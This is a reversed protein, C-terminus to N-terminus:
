FMPKFWACNNSLERNTENTISHAALDGKHAGGQEDNETGSECSSSM